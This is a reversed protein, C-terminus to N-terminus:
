TLMSHLLQSILDTACPLLLCIKYIWSSDVKLSVFGAIRVLDAISARLSTLLEEVQSVGLEDRKTLCFAHLAVLWRHM